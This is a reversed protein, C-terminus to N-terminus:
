FFTRCCFFTLGRSRECCQSSADVLTHVQEVTHEEAFELFAFRLDQNPNGCVLVDMVAGCEEFIAALMEETIKVTSRVCHNNTQVATVWTWHRCCITYVRLM